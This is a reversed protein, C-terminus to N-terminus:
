SSAAQQQQQQQKTPQVEESWGHEPPYWSRPEVSSVAAVVRELGRFFGTGDLLPNWWGSVISYNGEFNPKHHAGHAKRGILLGGDQLALVAPHLESKKMHSWAHFQQSMCCFFAFSPLFSAPALPMFPCLLLLAAAPYTAPRFVQLLVLLPVPTM